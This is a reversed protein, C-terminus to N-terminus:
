GGSLLILVTGSNKWMGVDIITLFKVADMDEAWFSSDSIEWCIFAFVPCYFPGSQSPKIVGGDVIQQM